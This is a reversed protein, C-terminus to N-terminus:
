KKPYASWTAGIVLLEIKDTSHGMHGLARMRATTEKFPDYRARMVRQV